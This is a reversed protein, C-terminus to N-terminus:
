HTHTPRYQRIEELSMAGSASPERTEIRTKLEAFDAEKLHRGPPTVVVTLDAKAPQRSLVEGQSLPSQRVDVTVQSSPDIGSRIESVAAELKSRPIGTLEVRISWRPGFHYVAAYMIRARLSDVGSTLMANYFVEHVSEWSRLKQDCAVDHIVAAARYRGEFPGGIISWAFQPISAGDIVWDEPAQWEVGKPDIYKFPALLRMHRGDELWETKVTGVFKGPSETSASGPIWFLLGLLLLIARCM